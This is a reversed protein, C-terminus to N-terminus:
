SKGSEIHGGLRRWGAATDIFGALRGLPEYDAAITSPLSAVVSGFVITGILRIHRPHTVGEGIFVDQGVAGV